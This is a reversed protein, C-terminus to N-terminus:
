KITLLLEVCQDRNKALVAGEVGLAPLQLVLVVVTLPHPSTTTTITVYLRYVTCYQIYLIYM